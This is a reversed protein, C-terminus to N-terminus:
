LGLVTPKIILQNKILLQEQQSSSAVESRRSTGIHTGFLLLRCRIHVFAVDIHHHVSAASVIYSQSCFNGVCYSQSCFNGVNDLQETIVVSSIGTSEGCLVLHLTEYNGLCRSIYPKTIGWVAHSTPAHAVFHGTTAGSLGLSGSLGRGDGRPQLWFCLLMRCQGRAMPKTSLFRAALWWM